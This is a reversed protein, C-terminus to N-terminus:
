LTGAWHDKLGIGALHGMRALEAPVIVNSQQFATVIDQPSLGKASMSQPDLYVM